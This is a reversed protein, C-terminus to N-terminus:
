RLASSRIKGCSRAFMDLMLWASEINTLSRASCRNSRWKKWLRLNTLRLDLGTGHRTACQDGSKERLLYARFETVILESYRSAYFTLHM